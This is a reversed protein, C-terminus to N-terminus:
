LRSIRSNHLVGVPVSGGRVVRGGGLGWGVLSSLKSVMKRLTDHFALLQAVGVGLLIKEYNSYVLDTGLLLDGYCLAHCCWAVLLCVAQNLATRGWAYRYLAIITGMEMTAPVTLKWAGDVYRTVLMVSLHSVVSALFIIRVAGRDKDTACALLVMLAAMYFLYWNM